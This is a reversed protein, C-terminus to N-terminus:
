EILTALQDMVVGRKEDYYERQLFYLGLEDIKTVFAELQPKPYMNVTYRQLKNLLIKTTWYDREQIAIELEEMLDDNHYNVIVGITGDGILQFQRAARAFSQFIVPQYKNFNNKIRDRAPCNIGLEDVMSREWDSDYYDMDNNNGAYYKNYYRMKLSEMDLPTDECHNLSRIAYEAADAAAQIEQLSSLNEETYRIIYFKGHIYIGNKMLKGERNCRGACQILSDIGTLSRFVVDFDVDVGAEILKTSVCVIKHRMRGDRNEELKRKMGSILELRHAACLNTTLYIIEADFLNGELYRCLEEVANKTNLIVLCSDFEELESIIYSGIAGTGLKRCGDKGTLNYFDVRQFCKLDIRDADTISDNEGNINGYHIPYRMARNDLVPQTATCHVVNCHMVTKMFNMMLNFNSLINLPLSQVEDLLIVSNILKCFRRINSAKGKYFTNCLQVVTTLIVPSEWSEKLYSIHHYEADDKDSESDRKIDKEDVVNSHHELISSDDQLIERIDSANQELVSLYATVYFVRSREYRKANTIAYRLGAKTKGAGTPLELKFVGDGRVRAEEKIADALDSRTQNLKTPNPVAEYKQYMTEIREYCQEWVKQTDRKNWLPQKPYHFANASDYIDAEKIISLCLRTLCGMYYQKEQRQRDANCNMKALHILKKYVAHFETYANKILESISLEGRKQLLEDFQRVFLIIDESYHYDGNEDYHFRGVNRYECDKEDVLDYLGHHAFIVYASVEYFFQFCSRRGLQAAMSDDSIIYDYLVRVGASSHNVKGNTKSCIYSQFVADAKGIDHLYGLLKLFAELEVEKGIKGAYQGTNYLHEELSQEQVNKKEDVDRHAIVM